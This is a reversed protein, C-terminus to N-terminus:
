PVKASSATSLAPVTSSAAPDVTARARRFGTVVGIVLPVVGLAVVICILIVTGISM